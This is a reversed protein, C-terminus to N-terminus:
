FDAPQGLGVGSNGHAVLPQGLTFDTHGCREAKWLPARVPPETAPRRFTSEGDIGSQRGTNLCQSSDLHPGRRRSHWPREEATLRTIHSDRDAVGMANAEAGNRRPVGGQPAVNLPSLRPSAQEEGVVEVRVLPFDYALICPYLGFAARDYPTGFFAGQFREFAAKTFVYKRHAHGRVYSGFPTWSPEPQDSSM